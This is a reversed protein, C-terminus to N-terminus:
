AYRDGCESEIKALLQKLDPAHRKHCVLTADPAHVIVLDEVGFVAILHEEDEAVVTVDNSDLLVARRAAAINKRADAELVNELQSWAGM